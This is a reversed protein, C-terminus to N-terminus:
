KEEGPKCGTAALPNPYGAPDIEEALGDICQFDKEIMIRLAGGGDLKQEYYLGIEGDRGAWAKADAAPVSLMLEGNEIRATEAAAGSSVRLGYRFVARGPFEITEAIEGAKAFKMVEDRNLRLRVSNPKFRLKM